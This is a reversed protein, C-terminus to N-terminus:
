SPIPKPFDSLTVNIVYCLTLFIVTCAIAVIYATALNKKEQSKRRFYQVCLLALYVLNPILFVQFLKSDTIVLLTHIPVIWFACIGLVIWDFRVGEQRVREEFDNLDGM